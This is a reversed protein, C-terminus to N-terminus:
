SRKDYFVKKLNINSSLFKKIEKLIKESSDGNGYPNECNWNQNVVKKIAEEIKESIPECDVVSEARVRGKQRDGINVTPIDLSPAEIIGSSSNGILGKSYKLM